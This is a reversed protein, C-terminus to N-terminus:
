NAFTNEPDVDVRQEKEFTDLSNMIDEFSPLNERKDVGLHQLLVPTTAYLFSRSDSPNPRREILGRVLLNRIIFTSNVGRVRDVEARTLPGRYLIIALTESGAKGIDRSLEETRLTEIEDSLDPATVLQVTTDTVTLRVGRSSLSTALQILAPELEEPSVDFFEALFIKKVPESKYFLVGEIHAELNM